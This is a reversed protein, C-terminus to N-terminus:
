ARAEAAAPPTGALAADLRVEDESSLLADPDQIVLVGDAMRALGLTHMAGPVLREADEIAGAPVAVIAEVQDVRIACPRKLGRLVIFRHAPALPTPPLGFRLRLDIVPVVRGHLNIVGEVFPPSHPLPTVASARLITELREVPLALRRSALEFALLQVPPRQTAV